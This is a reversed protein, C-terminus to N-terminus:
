KYQIAKAPCKDMVEKLQNIEEDNLISDKWKAKKGVVEFRQPM